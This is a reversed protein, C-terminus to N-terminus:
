FLFTKQWIKFLNVQFCFFCFVFFLFVLTRVLNPTFIGSRSSAQVTFHRSKYPVKGFNILARLIVKLETTVLIRYSGRDLAYDYYRKITSLPSFEYWIGIDSLNVFNYLRLIKDSSVFMPTPCRKLTRVWQRTIPLGANNWHVAPARWM